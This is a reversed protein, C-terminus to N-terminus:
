LYSVMKKGKEISSPPEYETDSLEDLTDSNFSTDELPNSM